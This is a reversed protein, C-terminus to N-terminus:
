YGRESQGPPNARSSTLNENQFDFLHTHGISHSGGINFCYFGALVALVRNRKSNNWGPVRAADAREVVCYPCVTDTGVLAEVQDAWAIPSLWNPSWGTNICDGIGTVGDCTGARM